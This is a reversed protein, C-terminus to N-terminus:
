GTDWGTSTVGTQDRGVTNPNDVMLGITGVWEVRMRAITAAGVSM